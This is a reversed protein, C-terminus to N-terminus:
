IVLYLGLADVIILQFGKRTCIDTHHIKVPQEREIITFTIVITNATTRLSCPSSPQSPTQKGSMNSERDGAARSGDSGCGRGVGVNGFYDGSNDTDGDSLAVEVMTMTVPILLLIILIM